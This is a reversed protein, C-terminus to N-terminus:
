PSGGLPATALTTYLPGDPRLDSKILRVDEARLVGLETAPFSEVARGIVARDDSRAERKIRGVTLHPSFPRDELPYGLAAAAQEIRVALAAVEGVAGEVGVWIVNPRRTNPFCGLGRLALTFPAAGAVATQLAASLETVRAADMNGLFKLTLHINEPAVWRVASAGPATQLQRQMSRLARRLDDTLEVAIFARISEV